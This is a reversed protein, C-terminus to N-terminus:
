NKNNYGVVNNDKDYVNMSKNIEDLENLEFKRCKGTIINIRKMASTYLSVGDFDSIVKKILLKANKYSACVGGWISSQIYQNLVGTTNYLDELYENNNSVNENNNKNDSNTKSYVDNIMHRHAITSITLYKLCDLATIKDLYTRMCSVGKFLIEVERECYFQSYRRRNFIGNFKTKIIERFKQYAKNKKDDNIKNFGQRLEDEFKQYEPGDIEYDDKYKNLNDITYFNYPFVEKQIDGLAFMEPFKSLKSSILKYSDKFTIYKDNYIIDRSYM